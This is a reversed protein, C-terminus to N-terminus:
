VKKRFYINGNITELRLTKGGGNITTNLRKSYATSEKDLRIDFDTYIEGNVSKLSLDTGANPLWDMDVFGNITKLRAPGKLDRAEISGNITEMELQANAPLFIEHSVRFCMCEKSDEWEGDSCSWCHWNNAKTIEKNYDTAIKLYDKGEVVDVQHVKELSKDSMEIFTKVLVENKNWTKVNIHHAFKLDFIVEKSAPLQYSDELTKTFPAQSSSWTISILLLLITISSKMNKTNHLSSVWIARRYM